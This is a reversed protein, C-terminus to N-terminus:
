IGRTETCNCCEQQVAATDEQETNTCCPLCRGGATLIFQEPCITCNYLGPGKCELCSADCSECNYGQEQLSIVLAILHGCEYFCILTYTASSCFNVESKAYKGTICPSECTGQTLTYGPHCSDCDEVSKGTLWFLM